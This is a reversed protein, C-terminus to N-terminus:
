PRPKPSDEAPALWARGRELDLTLIWSNLFQAGINGDMVLDRTRITGAVEIGNALRFSGPVPTSLDEALGLLPAIHNAVVISGGNGGDLEMWAVGRPTPVAADVALAAGEADRVLRVPLERARAIRRALSERTELIVATRPVITIMRGAFLDLGIAGDVPPVGPGLFKMIDVTSVVPARLAIGAISVPVDDCHANNLREGSMRFGTLRGWPQCGIRAAFAPSFSTVGEGTDFLFTGAIGNFEAHVVAQARLYPELPITAPERSTATTRCGWSSALVAGGLFVRRLRGTLRKM